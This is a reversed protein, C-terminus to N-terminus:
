PRNNLCEAKKHRSWDARQCDKSCYMAKQCRSCKQLLHKLEGTETLYSYNKAKCTQCTQERVRKAEQIAEKMAQERAQKESASLSPDTAMRKHFLEKRYGFEARMTDIARKEEPSVHDQLSQKWARCQDHFAEPTPSSDVIGQTVGMMMQAVVELGQPDIKGDTVMDALQYCQEYPLVRGHTAHTSMNFGTKKKSLFLSDCFDINTYVGRM